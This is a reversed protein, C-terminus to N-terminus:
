KRKKASISNLNRPIKPIIPRTKRIRLKIHPATQNTRQSKSKSNKKKM